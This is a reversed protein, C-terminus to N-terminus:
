EETGCDSPVPNCSTPRLCLRTLNQITAAARSFESQAGHFIKEAREAFSIVAVDQVRSAAVQKM